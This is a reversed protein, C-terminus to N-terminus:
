ATASAHMAKPILKRFKAKVQALNGEFCERHNIIKGSDSLAFISIQGGDLSTQAITQIMFFDESLSDVELLVVDPRYSVTFDSIEELAQFIDTAESTLLRRNKLWKKVSKNYTGSKGDLLLIITQSINGKKM